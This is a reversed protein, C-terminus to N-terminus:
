GVHTSIVCQKVFLHLGQIHSCNALWSFHHITDDQSMKWMKNVLVDRTKKSLIKGSDSRQSSAVCCYQRELHIMPCMAFFFRTFMSSSTSLIRVPLLVCQQNRKWAKKTDEKYYGGRSHKKGYLGSQCPQIVKGTQNGYYCTDFMVNHCRLLNMLKM